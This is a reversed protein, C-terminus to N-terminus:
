YVCAVGAAFIHFIDFKDWASLKKKIKYYDESDKFDDRNWRM